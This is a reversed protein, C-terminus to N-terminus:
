MVEIWNMVAEWFSEMGDECEWQRKEADAWAMDRDGERYSVMAMATQRAKTVTVYRAVVEDRDSM